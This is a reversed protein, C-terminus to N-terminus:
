SKNEMESVLATATTNREKNELSALDFATIQTMLM